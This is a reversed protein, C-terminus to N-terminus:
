RQENDRKKLSSNHSEGAILFLNLKDPLLSLFKTLGSVSLERSEQSNQLSTPSSSGPWFERFNTSCGAMLVWFNGGDVYMPEKFSQPSALKSCLFLQEAAVSLTSTEIGLQVAPSNFGSNISMFTFLRDSLPGCINSVTNVTITYCFCKHANTWKVRKIPCLCFNRSVRWPREACSMISLSRPM